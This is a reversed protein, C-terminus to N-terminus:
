EHSHSHGHDHDRPAHAGHGAECAPAACAEAEMQLTVHHLQYQQALLQAVAHRVTTADAGDHVVVHAALSPQQSSLSWV